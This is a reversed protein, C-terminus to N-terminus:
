LIISLIKGGYSKLWPFGLVHQVKDNQDLKQATHLLFHCVYTHQDKYKGQRTGTKSETKTTMLTLTHWTHKPTNLNVTARETVTGTALPDERVLIRTAKSHKTKDQEGAALM